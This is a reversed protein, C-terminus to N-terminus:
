QQTGPKNQAALLQQLFAAIAPSQESSQGSGGTSDKSAGQKKAQGPPIGGKSSLGPPTFSKGAGSCSSM